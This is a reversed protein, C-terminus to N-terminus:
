PFLSFLNGGYFRQNLSAAARGAEEETSFRVYVNGLLHDGLNECVNMADIEGYNSALESFIDEYFYDFHEQLQPMTLRCSPDHAPSIYLNPMLM